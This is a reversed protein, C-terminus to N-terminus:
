HSQANESANNTDSRLKASARYAALRARNLAGLPAHESTVRWPNFSLREGIADREATDFTQAQITLEAVKHYPSNWIVTADEVPMTAPNEQLQVHFDFCAPNARKTLREVLTERAFRPSGNRNETPPGDFQPKAYYKVARPGLRYAVCSWYEIELPALAPHAISAFRETERPFEALLIQGVEAASKGAAELGMKRAMFGYTTEVDPTFFIRIDDLLFDMDNPSEKPEFLKSGPVDLLKIAFGHIDPLRDDWVFANSFRVWASYTRATAFLGHALPTPVDELVRFEATLCAITNPHLGRLQPATERQHDALLASLKQITEAEADNASPTVPM